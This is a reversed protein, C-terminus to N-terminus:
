QFGTCSQYIKTSPSSTGFTLVWAPPAGSVSSSVTTGNAASFICDGTGDGYPVFPLTDTCTTVTGTGTQIYGSFGAHSVAGTGCSSLSSLPPKDWQNNAHTVQNTGSVSLSASGLTSVSWNGTIITTPASQITVDDNLYAFENNQIIVRPIAATTVIGHEHATQNGTIVTSQVNVTTGGSNATALVAYYDGGDKIQGIPGLAGGVVSVNAGATAVMSGQTDTSLYNDLYLGGNNGLNFCPANAGVKNLGTVYSPAGCDGQGRFPIQISWSGGSTTDLITQVGDWTMTIDSIGVIATADLKFGYRWDFAASNTVIMNIAAGGKIHYITNNNSGADIATKCALSFGCFQLWTGPTFQVDDIHFTDGVYNLQFADHTTYIWSHSVQWAGTGAASTALNFGDYANIINIHDVYWHVAGTTANETFVAPYVTTGNTQNPHYFNIGRMGWNSGITFPTVTTSTLLFTTGYSATIGSAAGIVGTGEIVCNALNNTGVSGTLLIQGSPIFLHGGTSVCQAISAALPIDSSTAGSLDLGVAFLVNTNAVDLKKGWWANWEAAQPNYGNVWNPASQALANCSILLSAAAGLFARWNM